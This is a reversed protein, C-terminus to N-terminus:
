KSVVVNTASRLGGAAAIEGTLTELDCPGYALSAGSLTLQDTELRFYGGGCVTWDLSGPEYFDRKLNHAMRTMHAM